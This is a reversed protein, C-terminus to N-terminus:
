RCEDTSDDSEDAHDSGQERHSARTHRWATNGVQTRRRRHPVSSALRIRRAGCLGLQDLIEHGDAMPRGLRPRSSRQPPSSTLPRLAISSARRSRSRACKSPRPRWWRLRTSRRRESVLREPVSRRVHVREFVRRASVSPAEVAIMRGFHSGHSSLPHANMGHAGGMTMFMLGACGVILRYVMPRMVRTVRRIVARYEVDMVEVSEPGAAVGASSFDTQVM